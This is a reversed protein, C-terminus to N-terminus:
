VINVKKTHTVLYKQNFFIHLETNLIKIRKRKYIKKRMYLPYKRCVSVSKKFIRMPIM